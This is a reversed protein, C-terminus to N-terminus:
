CSLDSDRLITRRNRVSTLLSYPLIQPQSYANHGLTTVFAGNKRHYNAQPPGAKRGGVAEM